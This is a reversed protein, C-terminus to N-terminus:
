YMLVNVTNVTVHFLDDSNITGKSVAKLHVDKSVSVLPMKPFDSKECSLLM